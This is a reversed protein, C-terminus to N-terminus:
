KSSGLGALPHSIELTKLWPVASMRMLGLKQWCARNPSEVTATSILKMSNEVIWVAGTREGLM